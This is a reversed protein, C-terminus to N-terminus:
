PRKEARPISKPRRQRTALVAARTTASTNKAKRYIGRGCDLEAESLPAMEEWTWWDRRASSRATM